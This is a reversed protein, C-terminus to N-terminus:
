AYYMRLFVCLVVIMGMHMYYMNIHVQGIEVYIFNTHSVFEKKKNTLLFLKKYADNMAFIDSCMSHIQGEQVKRLWGAMCSHSIQEVSRSKEVEDNVSRM